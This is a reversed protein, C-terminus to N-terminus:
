ACVTTGVAALWIFADANVAVRATETLNVIIDAAMLGGTLITAGAGVKAWIAVTTQTGRPVCAGVTLCFNILTVWVRAKIASVASHTFAAPMKLISSSPPAMMQLGQM